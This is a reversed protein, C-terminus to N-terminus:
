RFPAEFESVTGAENGDLAKTWLKTRLAPMDWFPTSQLTAVAGRGAVVELWTPGGDTDEAAFSLRWAVTSTTRSLHSTTVIAPKGAFWELETLGPLTPRVRAVAGAATVLFGADWTVRSHIVQLVGSEPTTLLLMGNERHFDGPDTSIAQWSSATRLYLRRFEHEAGLSIATPPDFRLGAVVVEAAGVADTKFPASARQGDPLLCELHHPADAVLAAWRHHVTTSEVDARQVRAQICPTSMDKDDYILLLTGKPLAGVVRVGSLRQGAFELAAPVAVHSRANPEVKMGPASVAVSWTSGIPALLTARELRSQVEHASYLLRLSAEAGAISISNTLDARLEGDTSEPTWDAKWGTDADRFSAMPPMAIDLEKREIESLILRVSTGFEIEVVADSQRAAIWPLSWVAADVPTAPRRQGQSLLQVATPVHSCAAFRLILTTDASDATAPPSHAEEELSALSRQQGIAAGSDPLETGPMAEGPAAQAAGPSAAGDEDRTLVFVGSSVILIALLLMTLGRPLRMVM